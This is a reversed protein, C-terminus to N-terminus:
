STLVHPKEKLHNNQIFLNQLKEDLMQHLGILTLEPELIDVIGQLDVALSAGLHRVAGGTLIVHAQKKPFNEQKLRTVCEKILGIAGYYLGSRINGETNRSTCKCPQFTDVQPLADTYDRLAKAGLEIGPAIVGGVFRGPTHLVDFTIATGMDIVIAPLYHLAIAGYLNAIRDMGVEQPHDVDLEVQVEANNFLFYPVGISRIEYEILSNLRSQVSGVGVAEVQHLSSLLRGLQEVGAAASPFTHQDFLRGKQWCGVQLFSNGVDVLVRTKM